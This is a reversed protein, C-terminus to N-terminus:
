FANSHPHICLLKHLASSYARPIPEFTCSPFMWRDKSFSYYSIFAAISSCKLLKLAKFPSVPVIHLHEVLEEDKAELVLRNSMCQCGGQVEQYVCDAAKHGADEDGLDGLEPCAPQPWVEKLYNHM